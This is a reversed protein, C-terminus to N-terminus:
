DLPLAYVQDFDIYIETPLCGLEFLDKECRGHGQVHLEYRECGSSVELGNRFTLKTEEDLELHLTVRPYQLKLVQDDSWDDLSVDGTAYWAFDSAEILLKGAAGQSAWKLVDECRYLAKDAALQERLEGVKLCVIFHTETTRVVM